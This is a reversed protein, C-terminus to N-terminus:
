RAYRVGLRREEAAVIGEATSVVTPKLCRGGCPCVQRSVYHIVPWFRRCFECVRFSHEPELM